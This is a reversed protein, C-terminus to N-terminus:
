PTPPPALGRDGPSQAPRDQGAHDQGLTAIIDGWEQVHLDALGSRSGMCIWQAVTAANPSFTSNSSCLAGNPAHMADLLQFLEARTIRVRDSAGPGVALARAAFGLPSVRHPNTVLIDNALMWHTGIGGRSRLALPMALYHLQLAAEEESRLTQVRSQLSSLLSQTLGGALREKSGGTATSLGRDQRYDFDSASAELAIVHLQPLPADDPWNSLASQLAYLASILGLNETAGGDTVYYSRRRGCPEAGERLLDVRANPFVPPFNANLAAAAALSVQSDAVLVFPFDVDPLHSAGFRPFADTAQVNTFALRSGSLYAYAVCSSMAQTSPGHIANSLVLSDEGPHGSISTNLILGLDAIDGLRQDGDLKREFSEVLLASLPTAGVLRWEMAGEIVDQIFPQSMRHKFSLWAQADYHDTRRLQDRHMAFDALAVGGGSVGSMLVVDEAVGLRALGELASATYLAARSGGGSAAIIIAPRNERAQRLLRATLDFKAQNTEAHAIVIPATSYTRDHYGAYAHLAFILALLAANVLNFYLKTRREIEQAGEHLAHALGPRSLRQELQPGQLALTRFLDTYAYTHFVPIGKVVQHKGVIAFRGAGHLALYRDDPAVKPHAGTELAYQAIGSRASRADTLLALLRVGLAQNVVHEYLWLLGYVMVIWIFIAGFPAAALITAVYQNGLLRAIALCIVLVSLAFPTGRFFWRRVYVVMQQWRSSISGWALLLAAFLLAGAWSWYLFKDPVVIAVLSPLFLLLFPQYIVGNVIAHWVRHAALDPEGRPVFLETHRLALAFDAHLRQLPQRLLRKAFPPVLLCMAFMAAAILAYAHRYPLGDAERASPSAILFWSAAALLLLVGPQRWVWFKSGTSRAALWLSALVAGFAVGLLAISRWHWGASECLQPQLAVGGVNFAAGLWAATGVLIFFLLFTWLAIRRPPTAASENLRRQARRLLARGFGFAFWGATALTLLSLTGYLLRPFLNGGAHCLPAYTPGYACFLLVLILWGFHASFWLPRTRIHGQNREDVTFRHNRNAEYEFKRWFSDVLFPLDLFFAALISDRRRM